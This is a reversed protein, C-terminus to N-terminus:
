ESTIENTNESGPNWKKLYSSNGFNLLLVESWAPPEIQSVFSCNCRKCGTSLLQGLLMVVNFLRLTEIM